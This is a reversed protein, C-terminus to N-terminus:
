RVRCLKPCSALAFHKGCTVFLGPEAKKLLERSMFELGECCQTKQKEAGCAKCCWLDEKCCWVLNHKAAGPTPPSCPPQAKCHWSLFFPSPNTGQLLLNHKAAGTPIPPFLTTTSQLALPPSLLFTRAKSCWITSQLVLPIPPFLPTTSQLAVHM